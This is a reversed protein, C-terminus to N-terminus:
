DNKPKFLKGNIMMLVGLFIHLSRTKFREILSILFFVFTLALIGGSILSLITVAKM